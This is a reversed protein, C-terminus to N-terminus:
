KKMWFDHDNVPDAYRVMGNVLVPKTKYKNVDPERIFRDGIMPVGLWGHRATAQKFYESCSPELTCRQGIAPSIQSRYFHVFWGAPDIQFRSPKKKPRCLGFLEGSWLARSTNIQQVLAPYETKLAQNKDLVLFASCAAMLFLQRNTTIQFTFAFSDLAQRPLDDQWLLRAKEFSAGAAVEVDQTQMSLATLRDKIKDTDAPNMRIACAAGLLQIRLPASGQQMIEARKCERNCAEWRGESFLQAALDLEQAFSTYFFLMGAIVALIGNQKRRSIRNITSQAMNKPMNLARSATRVM